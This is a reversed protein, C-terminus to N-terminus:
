TQFAKWIYIVYATYAYWAAVKNWKVMSYEMIIYKEIKWMGGSILCDIKNKSRLFKM